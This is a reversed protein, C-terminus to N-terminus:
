GGRPVRSGLAPGRRNLLAASKRGGKRKAPRHLHIEAVAIGRMRNDETLPGVLVFQHKQMWQAREAEPLSRALPQRRAMVLASCGVALALITGCFAAVM